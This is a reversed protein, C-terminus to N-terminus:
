KMIKPGHGEPEPGQEIQWNSRELHEVIAAAVREQENETLSRRMGHILALGKRLGLMISLRLAEAKSWM